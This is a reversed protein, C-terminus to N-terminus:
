IKLIEREWVRIIYRLKMSRLTEYKHLKTLQFKHKSLSTGYYALIYPHLIKGKLISRNEDGNVVLDSLGISHQEYFLGYGSLWTTSLKCSLIPSYSHIATFIDSVASKHPLLLFPLLFLFFSSESWSRLIKGRTEQKKIQSKTLRITNIISLESPLSSFFISHNFNRCRHYSPRHFPGVRMLNLRMM